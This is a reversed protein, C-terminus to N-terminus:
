ESSIKALNEVVKKEMLLEMLADRKDLFAYLIQLANSYRQAISNQTKQAGSVARQLELLQERNKPLKAIEAISNIHKEYTKRLRGVRELEHAFTKQLKLFIEKWSEINELIIELHKQNIEKKNWEAYLDGINKPAYSAANTYRRIQQYITETHVRVQGFHEFMQASYRLNSQVALATEKRAHEELHPKLISNMQGRLDSYIKRILDVNKQFLKYTEIDCLTVLDVMGELKAKDDAEVKSQLKEIVM